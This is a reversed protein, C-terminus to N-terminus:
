MGGAKKTLIKIVLRMDEERWRRTKPDSCIVSKIYDSIDQNQGAQEHLSVNHLALAELADRIDVEPRSLICFHIHPLHLEVLEEVILLVQERPTPYGSFNPCEDLADIVIYIEGHGPLTLMDKLCELLADESPQQSGRDHAAFLEFLITCFINSRNSLQVLLSSLLSRIDQKAADCFDFYFFALTALGTQCVDRVEQIITSSISLTLGGFCYVTSTNVCVLACKKWIWSDYFLGDVIPFSSVFSIYLRLGHIWMLSATSKWNNFTDGQTFWTATGRHHAKRALNHNVWPDPTFL